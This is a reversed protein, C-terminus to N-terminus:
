NDSTQDLAGEALMKERLECIQRALTPNALDLPTKREKNTLAGNAGKSVLLKAVERRDEECALHLASNGYMDAQDPRFFFLSRFNYSAIYFDIICLYRNVTCIAVHCLKERQKGINLNKGREVLMNVIVDNGKSAARHLPTAGRKDTINIDADKEILAACIAPWNKSAAYQLASHGEDSKENVDVGEKLLIKVIKDRGASAALILPTM